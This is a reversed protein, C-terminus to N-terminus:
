NISYRLMVSPLLTIRTKEDLNGFYSNLKQKLVETMEM